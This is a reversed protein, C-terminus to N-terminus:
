SDEGRGVLRRRVTLGRDDLIGLELDRANIDILFVLTSLTSM